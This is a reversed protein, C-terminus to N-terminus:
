ALVAGVALGLLMVAVAPLGVQAAQQKAVKSLFAQGAVAIVLTVVAKQKNSMKM